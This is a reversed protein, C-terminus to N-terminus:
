KSKWKVLIIGSSYVVKIVTAFIIFISILYLFSLPIAQGRQLKKADIMKPRPLRLTSFAERWYRSSTAASSEMLNEVVTTTAFVEDVYAAPVRSLSAVRWVYVGGDHREQGEGGKRAEARPYIVSSIQM